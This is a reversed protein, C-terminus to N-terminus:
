DRARKSACTRLAENRGPFTRLFTRRARPREKRRVCSTVCCTRSMVFEFVECLMARRPLVRLAELDTAYAAALVELRSCRLALRWFASADFKVGAFFGANRAAPWTSLTFASELLAAWRARAASRRFLYTRMRKGWGDEGRWKMEAGEETPVEEEM